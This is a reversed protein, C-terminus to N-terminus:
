SPLGGRLFKVRPFLYFLVWQSSGLPPTPFRPGPRGPSRIAAAKQFLSAFLM